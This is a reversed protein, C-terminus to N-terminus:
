WERARKKEGSQLSAWKGWSEHLVLSFLRASFCFLCSINTIWSNMKNLNGETHYNMDRGLITGHLRVDGAHSRLHNKDWLSRSVFLHSQVTQVSLTLVCFEEVRVRVWLTMCVVLLTVHPGADSSESSHYIAAWNLVSERQVTAGELRLGGVACARKKNQKKKKQMSCFIYKLWYSKLCDDRKKMGMKTRVVKRGKGKRRWQEHWGCRFRKGDNRQEGGEKEIVWLTLYSYEFEKPLNQDSTISLREM